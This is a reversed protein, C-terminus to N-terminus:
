LKVSLMAGHQRTISPVPSRSKSEVHIGIKAPSSVRKPYPVTPCSALQSRRDPCRNRDSPWDPGRSHNAGPDWVVRRVVGYRATGNLRPSEARLSSGDLRVHGSSFGSFAGRDGVVEQGKALALLEDAQEHRWRWLAVDMERRPTWVGRGVGVFLSCRVDQPAGTCSGGARKVEWGSHGVWGSIRTGRLISRALAAHLGYPDEMCRGHVSDAWGPPQEM